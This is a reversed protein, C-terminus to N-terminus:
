VLTVARAFERYGAARALRLSASNEALASYIPTLGEASIAASWVVTAALAYGQRRAGPLTEIGLECAEATRRSSHAMSLLRGEVIVGIPQYLLIKKTGGPWSDEILAYDDETLLRALRRASAMELAPAADLRLAVERSANPPLPAREPLREIEDLRALLKEREESALDARWILVRGGELDAAYLQWDPQASEPLLTIENQEILPLKVGWVAEVHLRLMALDTLKM